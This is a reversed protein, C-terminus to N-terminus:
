FLLCTPEGSLAGIIIQRTETKTRGRRIFKTYIDYVKEEPVRYQKSIKNIEIKDRNNMKEKLGKTLNYMAKSRKPLHEGIKLQIIQTLCYFANFLQASIRKVVIFGNLSKIFIGLILM